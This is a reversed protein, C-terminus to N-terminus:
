ALQKQTILCTTFWHIEQVHVWLQVEKVFSNEPVERATWHNLSRRGICSTRTRDRTPSSLDWMGRPWFVLVYLLLLITVFEIFVKFITWMLFFVKFFLCVLFLHTTQNFTMNTLYASIFSVGCVALLASTALGYASYSDIGVVRWSPLPGTYDVQWHHSAQRACGM